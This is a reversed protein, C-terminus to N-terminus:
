IYKLINSNLLETFSHTKIELILRELIIIQMCTEKKDLVLVAKVTNYKNLTSM